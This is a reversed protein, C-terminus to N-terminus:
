RSNKVPSLVTEPLSLDMRINALKPPKTKDTELNPLKTKDTVPNGCNARSLGTVTIGPQAVQKAMLLGNAALTSKEDNTLVKIRTGPVTVNFWCNGNKDRPIKKDICNSGFAHMNFDQLSYTKKGYSINCKDIATTITLGAGDVLQAAGAAPLYLYVSHTVAPATVFPETYRLFLCLVIIGLVLAGIAFFARMSNKM